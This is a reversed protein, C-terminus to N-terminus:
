KDPLNIVPEDHEEPTPRIPRLELHLVGRPRELVAAARLVQGTPAQVMANVGGFPVGDLRFRGSEDTTVRGRFAPDGSSTVLVEVGPLPEGRGRLVVGEVTGTTRETAGRVATFPSSHLASPAAGFLSVDYGGSSNPTFLVSHGDLDFPHDGPPDEGHWDPGIPGDFEEFIATAGASTFPADTSYDVELPSVGNAPSLGVISDDSTMGHYTFLIRGDEFFTAQFTNEGISPYEPVHNWTIVVLGPITINFHVNHSPEAPDQPLIVGSIHAGYSIPTATEISDNPEVEEGGDVTPAGNADLTLTYFDSPDGLGTHSDVALYYTGDAPLFRSIRPDGDIANYSSTIYNGLADYLTLQAYLRSNIRDALVEAVVYDNAQGTFSYFDREAIATRQPELDDWFPAASPGVYGGDPSRNGSVFDDRDESFDYPSPTTFTFNGNSNIYLTTYTQGFFPFPFPFNLLATQDNTMQIAPGLDSIFFSDALSIPGVDTEGGPVPRVGASTGTDPLGEANTYTASCSVESPTAAVGGIAFSGDATSEGSVGGCTVAAGSLPSGDLEVTGVVTTGPDPVVDLVVPDSLGEQGVSDIARAQLTLQSVGTPVTIQVEYPASLDEPGQVGDILVGVRDIGVDDIAGLVVPLSAGEVVEDGDNPEILRAEPPPDDAVPFVRPGTTATAGLDDTARVEITLSTPGVPVTQLVRYPAQTLTAVSTGNVLIEVSAVASDDSASAAIDVQGGEVLPTTALPSLLEVVPDPDPLVAVTRTEATGVNGGLDVAEAGLTLTSVGHPVILSEEFPARFDEDIVKGNVLFRVEQVRIDDSAEARLTIRRREEVEAGDAPETLAVTPAVGEEDGSVRYRGIHLGGNGWAGNDQITWRTAAVYVLGDEVAVGNGNDDRYSPAQSFDLAGSFSPPVLGVDFIPSANVFYYDATLAFNNELAVGVLGFDDTTSGVVVPTTPDNFDVVRLGGLSWAGDAVYARHDRVEVDAAQSFGSRLQTSGVIRMASTDTVDIVQLGGQADAVIVLNDEAAIGRANGPTDVEGLEAPAAPDAVDVAVVGDGGDAVFAVDGVVVVDTADGATDLQGALFPASPASIDVIALGASGDAVYAYQGVVQVDNANGPTDLTAVLTPAGPDYADVVHLGAGGSAVYAYGSAVDVGNPYGPLPLFSLATPSFTTVTVDTEATFGLNSVTVTATGDQGAFVVGDEAGFSAVTLDSSAYATGYSKRRLDIESGDILTGTVDLRRSGEGVATNFVLSFSSPSVELTTLIGSLDFSTSDLPDSGSQVELGDSIQDGDTDFRLPDTGVENVERGDGLGDGDTDFVNPDTGLQFEDATTLGDGDPDGVADAPDNPDLGHALEYDDPIGDGDSDGSLLVRVTLVALAGENLASVLVTGSVEATVLGDASVTATAPNSSRYGTGSSAPTVDKTTGDALTATTVLQVTQGASTLDTTPTTLTLSAPEPEASDFSIDPVRVVGNEPVVFFPSQGARTTGDDELCTARIRVEGVNAPVNPLVWSGDAQVQSARNLASVTCRADLVPAQQAHGPGAALFCTGAMLLVTAGHRITSTTM